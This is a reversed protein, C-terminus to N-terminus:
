LSPCFSLLFPRAKDNNFERITGLWPFPDYMAPEGETCYIVAISAEGRGGTRMDIGARRAFRENAPEPEYRLRSRCQTRSNASDQSSPQFRHDPRATIKNEQDRDVGM